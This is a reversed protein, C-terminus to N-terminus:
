KIDSFLPRTNELYHGSLPYKRLLSKTTVINDIEKISAAPLYPPPDGTFRQGTEASHPHPPAM